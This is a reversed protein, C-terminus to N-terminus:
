LVDEESEVRVVDGTKLTARTDLVRPMLSVLSEYRNDKACLVIVGLPISNPNQQYELNQDATVFIDYDGKALDMLRGNKIGSWGAEIVTRADHQTFWKKLRRPLYEDLLVKM